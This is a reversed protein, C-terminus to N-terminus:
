SSTLTGYKVPAILTSVTEGSNNDVKHTTSKNAANYIAVEWKGKLSDVNCIGGMMSLKVEDSSLAKQWLRIDRYYATTYGRDKWNSKGFYNNKRIVDRPHGICERSNIAVGNVYLLMKKDAEFVGALHVWSAVPLTAHGYLQVHATEVYVALYPIGGYVAFVVNDSDPGNGFDMITCWRSFDSPLYVFSEVTFNKTFWVDEPIEVYEKRKKNFIIVM